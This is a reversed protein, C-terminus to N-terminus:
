SNEECEPLSYNGNTRPYLEIDGQQPKHGWLSEREDNIVYCENYDVGYLKALQRAGIYHIDGDIKSTIYGPLLVYAM